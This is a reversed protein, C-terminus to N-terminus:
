LRYERVMDAFLNLLRQKEAGISRYVEILEIEDRSLIQKKTEIYERGILIDSLEIGLANCIIILTSIRPINEGKIISYLTSTAINTRKNIEYITIGKLRIIEQLRELIKEWSNSENYM